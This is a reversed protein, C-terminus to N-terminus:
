PVMRMFFPLVGRYRGTPERYDFAPQPGPHGVAANSVRGGGGHFRQLATSYQLAPLAAPPTTDITIVATGVTTGPAVAAVRIWEGDGGTGGAGIDAYGIRLMTGPQITLTAGSNVTLM